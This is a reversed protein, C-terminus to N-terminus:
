SFNVSRKTIAKFTMDVSCADQRGPRCLWSEAKTYDNKPQAVKPTQPTAGQPATTQPATQALISVTALIAVSLTLMFVRTRVM